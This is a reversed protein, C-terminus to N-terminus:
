FQFFFNVKSISYLQLFTGTTKNVFLCKYVNSDTTTTAGTSVTAAVDASPCVPCSTQICTFGDILDYFGTKITQKIKLPTPIIIGGGGHSSLLLEENRKIDSRHRQMQMVSSAPTYTKLLYKPWEITPSRAYQQHHNYHHIRLLNLRILM